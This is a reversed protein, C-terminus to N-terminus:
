ILFQVTGETENQFKQLIKSRGPNHSSGRHCTKRVFKRNRGFYMTKMFCKTCKHDMSTDSSSTKVFVLKLGEQVINLVWEDFTIKM